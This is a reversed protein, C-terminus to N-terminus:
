LLVCSPRLTSIIYVFIYRLKLKEDLHVYSYKELDFKRCFPPSHIVGVRRGEIEIRLRGGVQWRVDITSGKHLRIDDSLYSCFTQLGEDGNGGIKSLRNRLSEHFANRVMRMKLGQYHVVLRLTMEVEHVRLLDELFDLGNELEEASLGEYKDGLQGRLHDPHVYLGFAYIKISKLRMIEKSRAGVGALIQCSLSADSDQGDINNHCLQMPFELGTKPEVVVAQSNCSPLGFLAGDCNDVGFADQGYQFLALSSPPLAAALVIPAADYCILKSWGGELVSSIQSFFSSSLVGRTCLSIIQIGPSIDRILTYNVAKLDNLTKLKESKIFRRRSGKDGDRSRLLRLFAGAAHLVAAVGNGLVLKEPVPSISNSSLISLPSVDSLHSNESLTPCSSSASVSKSSPNSFHSCQGNGNPVKCSSSHSFGLNSTFDLVLSPFHLWGGEM